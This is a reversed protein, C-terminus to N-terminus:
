IPLFSIVAGALVNSESRIAVDVHAAKLKDKLDKDFELLVLTRFPVAVEQGQANVKQYVGKLYQTTRADEVILELPTDKRIQGADLAQMFKSYPLEEVNGYPGKFFFAGGILVLAIAFLVIGRWNFNPDNGNRSKGNKPPRTETQPM